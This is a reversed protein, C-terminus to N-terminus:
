IKPRIFYSFGPCWCDHLYEEGTGEQSSAVADGFEKGKLRGGLDWSREWLIFFSWIWIGIGIGMGIGIGGDLCALSGIGFGWRWEVGGGRRPMGDFVEEEGGGGGGKGEGGGGGRM